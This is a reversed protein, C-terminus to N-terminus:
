PSHSVQQRMQILFFLRAMKMRMLDSSNGVFVQNTEVEYFSAISQKLQKANPDSYLRMAEGSAQQMAAIALPSPPYPNENTNLKIYQQDQPQEGATYPDLEHTRASWYKSM